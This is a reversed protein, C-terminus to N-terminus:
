NKWTLRREKLYLTTWYLGIITAFEFIIISFTILYNTTFLHTTLNTIVLNILGSDVQIDIYFLYILWTLYKNPILYGFYMIKNTFTADNPSVIHESFILILCIILINILQALATQKILTGVFYGYIFSFIISLLLVFIIGLTRRFTSLFNVTDQNVLEKYYNLNLANLFSKNQLFIDVTSCLIMFIFLSLINLIIFVLLISLIMYIKKLKFISLYKNFVSNNWDSIMSTIFFISFISPLTLKVVMIAPNVVKLDFNSTYFYAFLYVLFPILIMYVYLKFSKISSCFTFLITRSFSNKSTLNNM